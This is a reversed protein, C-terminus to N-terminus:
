GRFLSLFRDEYYEFLGWRDIEQKLHEVSQRNGREVERFLRDIQATAAKPADGFDSQLELLGRQKLERVNNTASSATFEYLFKFLAVDWLEEVGVMVVALDDGKDNLSKSIRYAIDTPAGSMSESKEPQNRYQYLIGPSNPGEKRAIDQFYEYADPSFGELSFMYSPTVITPREAFVKGTRVIGELADGGDESFLPETVVYYKISTTGFTALRQKPFRAVFTQEIAKRWRRENMM